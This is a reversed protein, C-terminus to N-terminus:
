KHECIQGDKLYFTETGMFYNAEDIRRRQLGLLVKGGARTWLIIRRACLIPKTQWNCLRAYNFTMSTSFSYWGINYILSVLADFQRQTLHECKRSLKTAFTAVDQHMLEEAQQITIVQGKNIDPSYHGYGISYYKESPIAKCARLSLGEWKRILEYAKESPEM